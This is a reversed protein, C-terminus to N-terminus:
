PFDAASLTASQGRDRAFRSIRARGAALPWRREALRYARQSAREAIAFVTAKAPGEDPELRYVIRFRKDGPHRGQYGDRDFYLHRGDVIHRSGTSARNEAGPWPNDRLEVLASIAGRQVALLTADDELEAFEGSLPAGHRARLHERLQLLDDRAADTLEVEVM